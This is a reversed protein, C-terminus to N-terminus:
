FQYNEVFSKFFYLRQLENWVTQLAADVNFGRSSLIQSLAASSIEFRYELAAAFIPRRFDRNESDAGHELTTIGQALLAECNEQVQGAVMIESCNTVVRSSAM